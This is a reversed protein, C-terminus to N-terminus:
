VSCVHISGAVHAAAQAFDAAANDGPTTCQIGGYPPSLERVPGIYGSSVVLTALLQRYPHSSGIQQSACQDDVGACDSQPGCEREHCEQDIV